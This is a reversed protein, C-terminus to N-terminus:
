HVKFTSEGIPECEFTDVSEVIAQRPGTRCWAVLRDVSAPPGEFFAEVTGDEVNRVSGTVREARAQQRCSERFWVGHVRGSVVVRRRVLRPTSVEGQAMSVM